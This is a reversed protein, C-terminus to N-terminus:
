GYQWGKLGPRISLLFINGTKKCWDDTLSLMCVSYALFRRTEGGTTRLTPPALPVGLESFWHLLPKDAMLTFRHWLYLGHVPFFDRMTRVQGQLLALRKQAILNLGPLIKPATDVGGPLVYPMHLPLRAPYMAQSLVSYLMLCIAIGTKRWM